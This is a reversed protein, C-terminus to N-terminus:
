KSWEPEPQIEAMRVMETTTGTPEADDEGDTTKRDTGAPQGTADAVGPVRRGSDPRKWGDGDGNKDTDRQGGM